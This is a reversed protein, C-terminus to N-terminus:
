IKLTNTELTEFYIKNQHIFEITAFIFIHIFTNANKTMLISNISLLTFWCYNDNTCFCVNIHNQKNLTSSIIYFNNNKKIM